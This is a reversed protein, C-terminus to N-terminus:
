CWGGMAWWLLVAGLQMAQEADLSQSVKLVSVVVSVDPNGAATTVKCAYKAESM